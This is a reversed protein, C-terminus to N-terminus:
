VSIIPRRMPHKKTIDQFHNICVEAKVSESALGTRKMYAVIGVDENINRVRDKMANVSIIKVRKKTRADAPIKDQHGFVGSHQFRMQNTQFYPNLKTRNNMIAQDAERSLSEMKDQFAIMKHWAESGQVPILASVERVDCTQKLMKGYIARLDGKYKPTTMDAIYSARKTLPIGGSIDEAVPSALEM